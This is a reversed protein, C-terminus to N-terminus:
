VKYRPRIPKKLRKIKYIDWESKEKCDELLETVECFFM